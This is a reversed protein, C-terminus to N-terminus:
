PEAVLGHSGRARFRRTTTGSPAPRTRPRHRDRRRRRRRVHDARRDREEDLRLLRSLAPRRRTTSWRRRGAQRPRDASGKASRFRSTSRRSRGRGPPSAVLDDGEVLYIGIWSYHEFTDYLLDVTRQLVHHGTPESNVYRDIADLAGRRVDASASMPPSGRPRQGRVRPGTDQLQRSGAGTAAGGDVLVLIQEAACMPTDDDARYAAFATRVKRTGFGRRASSRWCTTSALSPATSSTPRECSSSLSESTRELLDLHRLYEFRATDFFPMYRGYYVVGQADTDSFGVRALASYKFPPKRDTLRGLELGTRHIM